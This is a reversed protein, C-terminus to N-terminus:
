AQAKALQARLPLEGRQKAYIRDRVANALALADVYGRVISKRLRDDM